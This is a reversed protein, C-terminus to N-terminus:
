KHRFCPNKSMPAWTEQKTSPPSGPLDTLPTFWPGNSTMSPSSHKQNRSHVPGYRTKNGHGNNPKDRPNLSPATHSPQGPSNNPEHLDSDWTILTWPQEPEHSPAIRDYLLSPEQNKMCSCTPETWTTGPHHRAPLIAWLPGLPDKLPWNHTQNLDPSSPTPSSGPM